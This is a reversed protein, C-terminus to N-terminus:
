GPRDRPRDQDGTRRILGRGGKKQWGIERRRSNVFLLVLCGRDEPVSLFVFRALSGCDWLCVNLWVFGRLLCVVSALSLWGSGEAGQRGGRMRRALEM